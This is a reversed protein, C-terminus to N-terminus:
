AAFVSTTTHHKPQTGPKAATFSQPEGNQGRSKDGDRRTRNTGLFGGARRFSDQKKIGKIIFLTDVDAHIAYKAGLQPGLDM